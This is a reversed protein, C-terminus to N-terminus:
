SPRCGIKEIVIERALRAKTEAEALIKRAEADIKEAIVRDAIGPLNIQVNYFAGQVGAHAMLAGVGADSVSNVNGIKAIEIALDIAQEAKKMTELPTQTANITAKQIAEARQKQQEDTEKPLKMAAMVADFSAADRAVLEYLEDKLVDTQKL